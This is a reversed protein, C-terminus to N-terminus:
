LIIPIIYCHNEVKENFPALDLSVTKNSFRLLSIKVCTM